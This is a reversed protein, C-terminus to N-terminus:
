TDQKANKIIKGNYPCYIKGINWCILWCSNKGKSEIKIIVFSRIELRQKGM